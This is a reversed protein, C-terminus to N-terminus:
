NITSYINNLKDFVNNNFSSKYTFASFEMDDGANVTERIDMDNNEYVSIDLLEEGELDYFIITIVQIGVRSNMYATLGEIDGPIKSFSINESSLINLISRIENKSETMLSTAVESTNIYISPVKYKSIKVRYIETNGSNIILDWKASINSQNQSLDGLESKNGTNNDCGVTFTLALILILILIVSQLQKKNKM